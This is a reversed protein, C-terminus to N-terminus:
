SEDAEDPELHRLITEVHVPAAKERIEQIDQSSLGGTVKISELTRAYEKAPREFYAFLVRAAKTQAM